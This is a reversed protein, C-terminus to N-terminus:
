TKPPKRGLFLELFVSRLWRNAPDYHYREHWHQKIDITPLKFPSRLLKINASSAFTLALNRPVTGITDTQSIVVPLTLIHPVVMTVPRKMRQKAIMREVAAEHTAGGSSVLVHPLTSFQQESLTDTVTPHEANAICVFEDRYLLQEFFGGALGEFQGVALDVDGSIMAEQVGRRPISEINICVSPAITQLHRLLRPLMVAEGIDTMFISFTRSSRAADFSADMKLAGDILECAKRIPEAISAAYPTPEMGRVTRVFLPDNLIKRLRALANSLAPQSLGVRDAALTINRERDIAVFAVLLNLDLSNINM